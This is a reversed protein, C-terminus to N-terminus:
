HCHMVSGKIPPDTVAQADMKIQHGSLPSISGTVKRHPAVSRQTRLQQWHTLSRRSSLARQAKASHGPRIVVRQESWQLREVAMLKVVGVGVGEVRWGVGTKKRDGGGGSFGPSLSCAWTGVTAGDCVPFARQVNIKNETVICHECRHM